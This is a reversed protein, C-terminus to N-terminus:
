RENNLILSIILIIIPIFIYQVDSFIKFKMYYNSFLTYIFTIIFILISFIIIGIIFYGAGDPSNKGFESACFIFQYLIFSSWILNVIIPIKNLKNIIKIKM